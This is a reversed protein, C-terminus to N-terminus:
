LTAEKLNFNSFAESIQEFGGADVAFDGYWVYEFQLTLQSFYRRQGADTLENLYASNTKSIQWNILGDDNLQKLCKLYLLRVALRYDGRSIARELEADFDIEHINELTEEYPLTVSKSRGGFAGKIDTGLLRYIIFLLAAVGLVIFVNSVVDGNIHVHRALMNWFWRWFRQWWSLQFHNEKYQFDTQKRYDDLTQANYSRVKIDSATDTVLVAPRTVKKAPQPLKLKVAPHKLPQYAWVRSACLLLLIWILCCRRMM